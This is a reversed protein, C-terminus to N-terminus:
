NLAAVDYRVLEGNGFRFYADQPEALTVIERPELKQYLGRMVRGIAGHSVVILNERECHEFLWDSIRGVLDQYSEGEPPRLSWKDQERAAWLEPWKAAIEKRSHGNWEGWDIEKLDDAPVIRDSAYGMERAVIEATDWTRGLPSAVIEVDQDALSLQLAAGLQRAQERGRDTLPSNMQGQMRGAVNWETQGHRLLYL